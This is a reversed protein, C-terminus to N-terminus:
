IVGEEKLANIFRQISEDVSSEKFIINKREMMYAERGLVKLSSKSFITEDFDLDGVDIKHIEMRSARRIKLLSVYRPTNIERTVTVIGPPSLRYRVVESGLDKELIFAEGDYEIKNVLTVVPLGLEVSLRPGTQGSYNDVSAEGMLILDIDKFYKRIAAGLIMAKLYGGFESTLSYIHYAEDVGMALAEILVDRSSEDGLTLAKVSGGYKDRLQLAAELANRDIDNIKRPTNELLVSKGSVKLKIPDYISKVLVLINM